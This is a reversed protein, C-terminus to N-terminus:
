FDGFPRHPDPSFVRDFVRIKYMNKKVGIWFKFILQKGQGAQERTEM